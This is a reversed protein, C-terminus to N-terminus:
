TATTYINNVKLLGIHNRLLEKMGVASKAFV